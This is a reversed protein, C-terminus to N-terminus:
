ESISFYKGELFRDRLVFKQDKRSGAMPFAEVRCWTTTTRQSSPRERCFDHLTQAGVRADGETRFTCVVVEGWKDDTIGVIAVEAIQPLLQGRIKSVLKLSIEVPNLGGGRGARLVGCGPLTPGSGHASAPHQVPHQVPHQLLWLVPIALESGFFSLVGSARKGLEM